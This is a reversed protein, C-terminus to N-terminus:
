TKPDYNISLRVERVSERCTAGTANPVNAFNGYVAENALIAFGIAEKADGSIGKEAIDVVPIPHFKMALGEMMLPNQVGGGSVYLIDLPSHDAVFLTYYRSISEVTFATLPQSGM